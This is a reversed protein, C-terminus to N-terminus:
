ETFNIIVSRKCYISFDSFLNDVLTLSPNRSPQSGKSTINAYIKKLNVAKFGELRVIRKTFLLFSFKGIKTKNVSGDTSSLPSGLLELGGKPGEDGSCCCSM